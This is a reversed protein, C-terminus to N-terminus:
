PKAQPLGNPAANDLRPLLLRVPLGGVKISEDSVHAILADVFAMAHWENLDYKRAWKMAEKLLREQVLKVNMAEQAKIPDLVTKTFSTERFLFPYMQEDRLMEARAIRLRGGLEPDKEKAAKIIEALKSEQDATLESLKWTRIPPITVTVEKGFYGTAGTEIPGIQFGPQSVDVALKLSFSGGDTTHIFVFAPYYSQWM